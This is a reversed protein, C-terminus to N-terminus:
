PSEVDSHTLPDPSCLSLRRADHRDQRYYRDPFKPIQLSQKAQVTKETRDRCIQHVLRPRRAPGSTASVASCSRKKSRQRGSFPTSLPLQHSKKEDSKVKRGFIALSGTEFNQDASSNQVPSSLRKGKKPPRTRTPLCDRRSLEPIHLM